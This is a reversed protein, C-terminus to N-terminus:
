MSMSVIYIIDLQRSIFSSIPCGYDQGVAGLMMAPTYSVNFGYKWFSVPLSTTSFEYNGLHITMQITLVKSVRSKPSQLQGNFEHKPDFGTLSIMFVSDLLSTRSTIVHGKPLSKGKGIWGQSPDSEFASSEVHSNFPSQHM